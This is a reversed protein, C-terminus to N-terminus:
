KGDTAVGTMNDLKKGLWLLFIIVSFSFLMTIDHAVLCLFIFKLIWTFLAFEILGLIIIFIKM